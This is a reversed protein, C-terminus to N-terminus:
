KSFADKFIYNLIKLHACKSKNLHVDQCGNKPSLLCLCLLLEHSSPATIQLCLDGLTVLLQFFCTITPATSPLHQTTNIQHHYYTSPPPSPAHHTTNIHQQRHARPLISKTSISEELLQSLCFSVGMHSLDKSLSSFNPRNQVWSIGLGRASCPLGNLPSNRSESHWAGM